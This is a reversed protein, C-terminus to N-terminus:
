TRVDWIYGIHYVGRAAMARDIENMADNFCSVAKQPDPENSFDVLPEDLFFGDRYTYTTAKLKCRRAAEGFRAKSMPPASQHCGGLSILAIASLRWTTRRMNMVVISLSGALTQLAHFPSGSAQITM